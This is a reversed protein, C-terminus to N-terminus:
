LSSQSVVTFTSLINRAYFADPGSSARFSEAIDPMVGTFLTYTGNSFVVLLLTGQANFAIRTIIKSPVTRM